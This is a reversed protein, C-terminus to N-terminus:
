GSCITPQLIRGSDVNVGLLGGEDCRDSDRFGIDMLGRHFRLFNVPCSFGWTSPLPLVSPARSLSPLSSISAPIDIIATSLVSIGRFQVM